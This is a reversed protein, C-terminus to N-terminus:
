TAASLSQTWLDLQPHKAAFTQRDLEIRTRVWESLQPDPTSLTQSLGHRIRAERVLVPPRGASSLRVLLDTDQFWIVLSPDFFDDPRHAFELLAAQSLAFCWAAFDTRMAGDVTLPFAVAAGADLAARLPEWWGPLPEVDDNMVVMFPTRAARLGANVPGSFGQPPAGNDVIVIEHPVDTTAAIARLCGRVRDSTADLTPIVITLEATEGPARRAAGSRPDPAVIMSDSLEQIKQGRRAMELALTGIVLSDDLAPLPLTRLEATRLAASWAELVATATGGADSGVSVALGVTPDDLAHVLPALWGPGPAAQGRVLVLTEAQARDVGLMVAQAFGLRRDSRVIEVDGDLRGLLADLGVSADDIVIVEFSLATTQTAIGELCRLAQTPDGHLAVMISVRPKDLAM